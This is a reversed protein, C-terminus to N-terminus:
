SFSEMIELERDQSKIIFDSLERVAGMGGKKSTVWHAAAKVSDHADSVAVGFGSKKILALDPLDDGLYAINEYTLSLQEVLNEYAFRKDDYGQYIFDIGLENMRRAVIPSNRSSIIATKIQIKQLLKIALGDKVNFSKLSEGTESYILQGNTLVGDVDLIVLKILKAKM